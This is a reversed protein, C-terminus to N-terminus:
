SVEQVAEVSLKEKQEDLTLQTLEFRKSNLIKTADIVEIRKAKIDDKISM